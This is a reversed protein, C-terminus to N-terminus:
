WGTHHVITRLITKVIREENGRVDDAERYKGDVWERKKENTDDRFSHPM